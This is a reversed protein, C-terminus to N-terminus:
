KEEILEWHALEVLMKFCTSFINFVHERDGFIKRLKLFYFFLIIERNKILNRGKCLFFHRQCCNHGHRITCHDRVTVQLQLWLSGGAMNNEEHFRKKKEKEVIEFSSVRCVNSIEKKKFFIGVFHWLMSVWFLISIRKDSEFLSWTLLVCYFLRARVFLFNCQFRMGFHTM